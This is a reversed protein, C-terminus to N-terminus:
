PRLRRQKKAEKEAQNQVDQARLWGPSGEPLKRQAREAQGQAERFKGTSLAREASALASLGLKDARGYAIALQHWAEPMERDRGLAAELHNIAEANFARNGSAILSQALGLRLLPSGPHFDVARRYPPISEPVKGSEFLIQGKLENFYPDGPQEALLSDIEVLAQELKVLRHYAVARAYRGEVSTDSAPYRRLTAPPRDLFGRLKAHMRKHAAILKPPDPRGSNPSQDIHFRVATLREGVLPHTRVYPDQRSGVLVDQDALVELFELMGTASQGTLDLLRLAAQDAASEETRSYRLFQRQAMSGGGLAIAGVADGQGSAVAAAAGLLLALMSQVTMKRLAEQKRALHGGAIHGTEHAIVGILQNPREAALLLGTFVFLRQGGAVFANLMKDNVLHVKVARADLGAASFLPNAYTRITDEIEADRVLSLGRASANEVASALTLVLALFPALYRGSQAIMTKHSDLGHGGRPPGQVM